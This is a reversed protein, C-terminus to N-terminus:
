VEAQKVPWWVIVYHDPPEYGREMHPGTHGEPLECEVDVGGDTYPDAMWYGCKKDEM